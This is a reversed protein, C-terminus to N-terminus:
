LALYSGVATLFLARQDAPVIFAAQGTFSQGAYLDGATYMEVGPVVVTAQNYLVGQEDALKFSYSESSPSVPKVADIGTFTIDVLVYKMGAPPLDNFQNAEIVAAAADGNTMVASITYLENNGADSMTLTSGAPYPNALTGQVPTPPAPEESPATDKPEDKPQEQTSPAKPSDGDAYKASSCGTITLALVLAAAAIIRKNM